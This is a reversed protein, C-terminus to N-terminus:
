QHVRLTRLYDSLQRHSPDVLRRDAASALYIERGRVHEARICALLEPNFPLAACELDVHGPVCRRSCQRAACCPRLRLSHASQGRRWCVSFRSRWCTPRSWRATSISLWRCRRLHAYSLSPSNCACDPNETAPQVPRIGMTDARDKGNALAHPPQGSATPFPQIRWCNKAPRCPIREVCGAYFYVIVCTGVASGFDNFRRQPQPSGLRSSNSASSIM